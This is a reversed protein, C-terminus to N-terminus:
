GQSRPVNSDQDHSSIRPKVDLLMLVRGRESLDGIMRRAPPPLQKILTPAALIDAQKAASPSQYIDVVELEYNGGLYQECISQLNRIARQSRRTAGSVFLKLLYKKGIPGQRRLANTVM